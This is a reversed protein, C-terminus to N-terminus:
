AAPLTLEFTSWGDENRYALDGRMLRALQRSVTLGLGISAPQSREQHASEYPEFVRAADESSLGEGNDAVSLRVLGGGNRAEIRVQDGGYRMANTVLNRIVQRCRGPDALAICRHDLSLELDARPEVVRLVEEVSKAVDHPEPLITVAGIDARAAVLLDEVIAAVERAQVALVNRLELREEESIDAINDRLEEALGLVATLPTRLEHSVSAVFEDKSRVLEALRTNSEELAKQARAQETVDRFNAVIGRVSAEHLMNQAAVDLIRISGDKHRVRAQVRATAQPTQAVRGLEALVTPVDEGVVIDHMPRGAREEVTYGLIRGVSDSVYELTGDLGIIGVGDFANEIMTRFRAEESRLREAMELRELAVQRSEATIRRIVWGVAGLSFVLATLELVLATGASFPEFWEAKASVVGLAGWAFGFVSLRVTARGETLLVVLVLYFFLLSVTVVPLSLTMSGYGLAAGDVTIASAVSPKRRRAVLSHLLPILPAGIVWWGREWDTIFGAVLIALLGVAALGLRISHYANATDATTVLAGSRGQAPRVSM